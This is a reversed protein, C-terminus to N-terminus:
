KASSFIMMGGDKKKVVYGLVLLFQASDIPIEIPEHILRGDPYTDPNTSYATIYEKTVGRQVRKTIRYESTEIVYDEGWILLNKDRVEKLALICGSPYEVMSCGYHRLAATADRFWDGTNIYESPRYVPGPEAVQDNLGGITSIDDYFPILNSENLSKAEGDKLMDGVGMRLWVPNLDSFEEVQTIRQIIKDSPSRVINNVYGNSLGVQKEFAAQSMRKYILYQILREKVTM